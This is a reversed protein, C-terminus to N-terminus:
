CSSRASSSCRSRDVLRLTLLVFLSTPCTRRRACGDVPRAPALRRLLHHGDARELLRDRHVRGPLVHRLAPGLVRRLLRHDGARGRPHRVPTRKTEAIAATLFLVFAICSRFASSAGAALALGGQQRWWRARSSRATSWSCPWCRWAWRRGRVVDDALLRAPRGDAGVQQLSAWGGADRRLGVAVLHRLLVPHGRRAPRDAADVPQACQRRAPVTELLQGWCLPPGFPIIAVVILAPRWRWSRRWRSCSGTRRAAPRLGGQLHDEARRRRLPHHGLGQLPGINARNPGLRDQMMATQRRELWTLISALRCGLALMLFVVKILPPRGRRFGAPRLLLIGSRTWTANAERHQRLAAPGAADARGWEAGKMFPPSGSRRSSCRRPALRAGHRRGARQALHSWRDGLRAPRRGAPPSPRRAHAAGHGTRNTITGDVEAWDALPLAVHPRTSWRGRQHAALVVLTECSARAAAGGAGDSASCGGDDGVVLLASCRARDQPRPELDAAAQCGAGRSRRPARPTRTRTPASWSTTPGARPRQGALYATSSGLHEVGAPGARLLGRQHVAALVGRRGRRRRRRLAASCGSARRRRARSGLRGAAGGVLPSRWGSRRAARKYTFRGEDCMWHKNVTPTRARCWATSGTARTRPGRHQLRDRLRHLGVADHVLEWARM